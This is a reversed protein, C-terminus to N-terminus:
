QVAVPVRRVARGLKCVELETERCVPHMRLFAPVDPNAPARLPPRPPALLPALIHPLCPPSDRERERESRYVLCSEHTNKKPSLSGKSPYGVLKPSCSTVVSVVM